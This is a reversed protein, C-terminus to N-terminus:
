LGDVLGGEQQLKMTEAAISETRRSTSEDLVGEDVRMKLGCERQFRSSERFRVLTRFFNLICCYLFGEGEATHVTIM